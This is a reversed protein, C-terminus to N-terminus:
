EVDSCTRPPFLDGFRRYQSLYQELKLFQAPNLRYYRWRGQQRMQVLQSQKLTKLHFSLKSQSMGLLECLDCVCLEQSRLHDLIQLRLPDSLAQFGAQFERLDTTLMPLCPRLYLYLTALM